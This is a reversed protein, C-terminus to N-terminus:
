YFLFLVLSFEISLPFLNFKFKKRKTKNQRCFLFCRFQREIKGKDMKTEKKKKKKYIQRQKEYENNNNRKVCFGM